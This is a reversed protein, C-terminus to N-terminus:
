RVARVSVVLTSTDRRSSPRPSGEAVAPPALARCYGAAPGVRPRRGGTWQYDGRIQYKQDDQQFRIGKALEVVCIARTPSRM